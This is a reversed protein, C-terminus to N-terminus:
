CINPLILCMSLDGCVITSANTDCAFESPRAFLMLLVDTKSTYQSAPTLPVSIGGNKRLSKQDTYWNNAMQIILWISPNTHSSIVFYNIRM